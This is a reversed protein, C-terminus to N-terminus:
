FIDEVVSAVPKSRRPFTLGSWSYDVRSKDYWAPNDMKIGAEEGKHQYPARHMVADCGEVPCTWDSELWVRVCVYCNSHGCEYAVPHSMICHCLNCMQHLRGAVAPPREDDLYLDEETLPKARAARRGARCIIRTRAPSLLAAERAERELQRKAQLVACTEAAYRADKLARRWQAAPSLTARTKLYIRRPPGDPSKPKVPSDNWSWNSKPSQSWLSMLNRLSLLTLSPGKESYSQLLLAYILRCCTVCINGTPIAVKGMITEVYSPGIVWAPASPRDDYMNFYIVYRRGEITISITGDGVRNRAPLRFSADTSM